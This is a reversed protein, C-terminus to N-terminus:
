YKLVETIFVNLQPDPALNNSALFTGGRDNFMAKINYAKAEKILENLEDVKARIHEAIQKKDETNM